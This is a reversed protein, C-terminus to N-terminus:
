YDNHSAARLLPLDSYLNAWQGAISTATLREAWARAAAGMRHRDDYEDLIRRTRTAFLRKDGPDLLLGTEGDRILEALDARRSGIVVRGAAMAELAANRGGRQGLVWVVEALAMLEPVDARIGAFRVRYDGRGISRSFLELSQRQPGDGLILLWLDGAVYRLIDFLWIADRFGYGSELTGACVILRADIPLQLARLAAARDIAKPAAPAAAPIIARPDVNIGLRALASAEAPGHATVSAARRLLWRDGRHPMRGALLDSMVLSPRERGRFAQWVDVIGALRMAPRRWAHIVSPRLRKVLRYLERFPTPDYRVSGRLFHLPIQAVRLPEGLVGDDGMVAVHAAIEPPFAPAVLGVQRAAGNPGLHPLLHLITSM